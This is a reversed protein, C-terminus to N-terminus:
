NVRSRYNGCTIPGAWGVLVEFLGKLGKTDIDTGADGLAVEAVVWIDVVVNM